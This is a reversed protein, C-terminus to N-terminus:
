DHRTMILLQKVTIGDHRIRRTYPLKDPPIPANKLSARKVERRYLVMLNGFQSRAGNFGHIKSKVETIAKEMQWHSRSRVADQIKKAMERYVDETMRWTIKSKSTETKPLRVLELGFIVIRDYRDLADHLKEASHVPHKGAAPPMAHLWWSVFDDGERYFMFVRINGLCHRKRRERENKDAFARYNGDFNAVTLELRHIPTTGSVYYACGNGVADSIAQLLVTKKTFIVVHQM